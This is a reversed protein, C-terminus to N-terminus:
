GPGESAGRMALSVRRFRELKTRCANVRLASSKLPRTRRPALKLNRPM